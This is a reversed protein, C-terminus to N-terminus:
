TFFMERSFLGNTSSTSAYRMQTMELQGLSTVRSPSLARRGAGGRM